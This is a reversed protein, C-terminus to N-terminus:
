SNHINSHKHQALRLLHHSHLKGYSADLNLFKRFHRPDIEDKGQAVKKFKKWLWKMERRNFPTKFELDEAHQRYVSSENGM